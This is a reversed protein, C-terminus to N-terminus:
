VMMVKDDVVAGQNRVYSSTSFGLDESQLLQFFSLLIQQGVQYGYLNSGKFRTGYHATLHM